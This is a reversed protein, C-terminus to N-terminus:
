CKQCEKEYQDKDKECSKIRPESSPHASWNPEFFKMSILLLELDVGVAVGEKRDNVTLIIAIEQKTKTIFITTM